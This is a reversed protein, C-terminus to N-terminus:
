NWWAKESTGIGWIVDNKDIAIYYRLPAKRTDKKM